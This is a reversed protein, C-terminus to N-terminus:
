IKDVYYFIYQSYKKLKFTYKIKEVTSIALEGFIKNSQILYIQIKKSNKLCSSTM